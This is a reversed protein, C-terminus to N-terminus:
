VNSDPDRGIVRGYKIVVNPDQILPSGPAYDPLLQERHRPLTKAAIASAVYGSGFTDSANKM